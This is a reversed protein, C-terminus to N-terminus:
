VIKYCDTRTFVCCSLRRIVPSSQWIRCTPSPLYVVPISLSLQSRQLRTPTPLSKSPDIFIVTTRYLDIPVQLRAPILLNATTTRLSWYLSTTKTPDTSVRDAQGTWVADDDLVLYLVFYNKVNIENIKLTSFTTFFSYLNGHLRVPLYGRYAKRFVGLM